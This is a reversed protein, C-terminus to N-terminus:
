ESEEPEELWILLPNIAIPTELTVGPALGVPTNPDIESSVLFPIYEGAYLRIDCFAGPYEYPTPGFGEELVIELSFDSIPKEPVSKKFSLWSQVLSNDITSYDVIERNVNPARCYVGSLNVNLTSGIDAPAIENFYWLVVVTLTEYLDLMANVHAVISPDLITLTNTTGQWAGNLFISAQRVTGDHTERCNVTNTWVCRM